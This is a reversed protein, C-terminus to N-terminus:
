RDETLEKKTFEAPKDSNAGITVKTLDSAKEWDADKKVAELLQTFKYVNGEVEKYTGSKNRASYTVTSTAKSVDDVMQKKTVTGVRKDNWYIAFGDTQEEDESPDPAAKTTIKVTSNGTGKLKVWKSSTEDTPSKQGFVFRFYDEGEIHMFGPKVTTVAAGDKYYNRTEDLDAKTLTAPKEGKPDIIEVQTDASAAQWADNKEVTKLLKTFQYVKGTYEGQNNSYTEDPYGQAHEDMTDYSVTGVKQGDWYVDIGEGTDWAMAGVTLLSLMMVLAVFLASVRNKMTKM